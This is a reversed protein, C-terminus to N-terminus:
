APPTRPVPRPWSLRASIPERGQFHKKIGARTPTSPAVVTIFSAARKAADIVHAAGHCKNIDGAIPLVFMM